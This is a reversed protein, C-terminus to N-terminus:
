TTENLSAGPGFVDDYVHLMLVQWMGIYQACRSDLNASDPVVFKMKYTKNGPLREQYKEMKRTKTQKQERNKNAFYEIGYMRM